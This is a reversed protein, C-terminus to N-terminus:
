QHTARAGNVRGSAIGHRTLYRYSLTIAHMMDGAFSDLEVAVYETHRIANSAAILDVQGEGAARFPIPDTQMAQAHGVEKSATQNSLVGDKFHLVKGRPGIERIFAAPDLGARAIWFVDAEYLVTEPTHELFVEHARRGEVLGLDWDHNHYGVQLGHPALNEAAECYLEAMAKVRDLSGYNEGLGPPCGTILYRHGMQKAEDIIADKREGVPLGMHATPAELGLEAFLKAAREPTSGPYGAPEVCGFGIDALARLTGEYDKAALDRVSYLQVTIKPTM